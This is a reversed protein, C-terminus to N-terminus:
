QICLYYIYLRHMCVRSRRKMTSTPNKNHNINKDNCNCNIIIIITKRIKRNQAVNNYLYMYLNKILKGTALSLSIKKGHKKKQAFKTHLFFVCYLLCAILVQKAQRIFQFQALFLLLFFRNQIPFLTSSISM